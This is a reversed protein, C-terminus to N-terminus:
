IQAPQAWVLTPELTNETGSANFYKTGPGSPLHFGLAPQTGCADDDHVLFENATLLSQGVM